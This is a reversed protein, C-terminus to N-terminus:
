LGRNFLNIVLIVKGDYMLHLPPESVWKDIVVWYDSMQLCHADLQSRSAKFILM